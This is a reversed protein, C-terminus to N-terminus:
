KKGPKARQEIARKCEPCIFRPLTHPYEIKEEGFGWDIIDRVLLEQRFAHEACLGMGCVICITVAEERKGQKACVYCKM